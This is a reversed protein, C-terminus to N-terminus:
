SKHRTSNAKSFAEVWERVDYIFARKDKSTSDKDVLQGEVVDVAQSPITEAETASTNKSVKTQSKPQERHQSMSCIQPQRDSM